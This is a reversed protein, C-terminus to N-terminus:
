GPRTNARLRAIEATSLPRHGAVVDNTDFSWEGYLVVAVDREDEVCVAWSGIDGQASWAYYSLGGSASRSLSISSGESRLLFDMSGATSPEFRRAAEAVGIVEDVTVRLWANGGHQALNEVPTCAVIACEPLLEPYEGLGDRDALPPQFLAWFPGDAFFPGSVRVVADEGPAPPIEALSPDRTTAAGAPELRFWPHSDESPVRDSWQVCATGAV